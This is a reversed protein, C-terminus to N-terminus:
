QQMQKIGYLIRQTIGEPKYSQVQFRVFRSPRLSSLSFREKLFSRRNEDFNLMSFGETNYIFTTSSLGLLVSVLYFIRLCINPSEIFLCSVPNNIVV